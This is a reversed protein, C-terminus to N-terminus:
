SAGDEPDYGALTGTWADAVIEIHHAASGFRRGPRRPPAAVRLRRGAEPGTKIVVYDRAAIDADVLFSGGTRGYPGEGQGPDDLPTELPWFACPADATAVVHTPREDGLPDATVSETPRVIDATHDLLDRYSM